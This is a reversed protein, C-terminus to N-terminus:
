TRTGWEVMRTPGGNWTEVRRAALISVTSGRTGVFGSSKSHIVEDVLIPYWLGYVDKTRRHDVRLWGLEDVEEWWTANKEDSTIIVQVHELGEDARLEERVDEVHQKISSLPAFCEEPPLGNCWALFDNHRVHVAIYPPIAEEELVDLTKRLYEEGIREVRPAWRFYQGVFRWAPSYDLELEDTERASVYYLCDYCLLQEDPPDNENGPKLKVFDPTKTYSVDLKLFWPMFSQRPAPDENQIAQWVSWCGVSEMLTSADRRKVDSWELIPTRTAKRLYPLDFVESFPLPNEAANGAWANLLQHSPLFVPIVPIRSTIMGLYILNIVSIVDNSWGGSGWSTIYATDSRLNDRFGASPPGNLYMSASFADGSAEKVFWSDKMHAHIKGPIEFEWLAFLSLCALSFAITLRITCGLTNFRSKALGWGRPLRTSAAPHENESALRTWRYRTHM